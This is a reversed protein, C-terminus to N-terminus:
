RVLLMQGTADLTEGTLRYLYFGSPWSPAAVTVAHAGAALSVGDILTQVRRGLINYVDLSVRQPM